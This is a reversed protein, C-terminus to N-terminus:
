LMDRIEEVTTADEPGKDYRTRMFRPFRLALGKKVKDKGATHAPSTTIQSGLVEIVIFPDIYIDPEMVKGISVNGPAKKVIHDEILSNLEDFDDDTFGTGVKTFTEYRDQEKNLVACLLAGFSGKRRGRGHYSGVVVLDFTERIGKAYEKKWKVWLWGRKGPQYVSNESTSKIIIGELGKDISEDFFTQIEGLNSSIIRHSLKIRDTEKLSKELLYRREPYSTELLSDGELSLIDFFFVAVPIKKIYKEVNHKRRRQMLEQFPQIRSDRYAVIEGDLVMRDPGLSERVAEIVDPFQGSIDELRRSFSRIDSGDIHVQVREGDYKEEAAMEGPFRRNLEEMTDVRKALMMKVPRGQRISFSDLSTIGTNALARAIEGIDPCINYTDEIKGANKRDGTFALALSEILFQEGFGLRLQGLVIRIVYKAEKQTSRELLRSLLCIKQGQSGSGSSDRIDALQGFVDEMDLSSRQMEDLEFAVDGLDGLVYFRSAVDEESVDYAYSIARIALKEGIGLDIDEFEPGITGLALYAAIRADEPELGKLFVALTEVIEKHSSIDEIEAYLNALERFNGM